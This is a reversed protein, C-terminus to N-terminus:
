RHRSFLATAPDTNLSYESNYLNTFSDRALLERGPGKLLRFM